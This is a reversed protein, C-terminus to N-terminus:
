CTIFGEVFFAFLMWGVCGAVLVVGNASFHARFCVDHHDIIKVVIGVLNALEDERLVKVHLTIKGTKARRRAGVQENLLM